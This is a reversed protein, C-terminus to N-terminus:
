SSAQFVVVVARLQRVRLAQPVAADEGAETQGDEGQQGAVRSVDQGRLRLLFHWHSLM